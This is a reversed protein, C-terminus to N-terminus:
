PTGDALLGQAAKLAVLAKAFNGRATREGNMATNLDRQLRLVEFNTSIGEQRRQQEAQLQRQALDLTKRAARVAEAQYHVQRVAERVEAAITTELQDYTLRAARLQAWAAKFANRATTNSLPISYTLAARWTPFEYTASSQFADYSDGDFGTSGASLDLDLAGERENDRTKHRLVAADIAFRQQRLEPRKEVAVAFADLWAPVGAASATEVLPTSPVLMTDWLSAETGPFLLEKLRDAAQRVRLDAALVKEENNAVETEASLVDLQIGIGADLRKQDQDLQAKALDLSSRAVDLQARALVLDWYANSVERILGHRIEREHESQRKWAYDFEQQVATAYERWAGRLLPQKYALVLVDTTSTGEAAFTSDTKQNETDFRASFAGGTELPRQLDLFGFQTNESTGSFVNTSEFERDQVGASATLLWDFAGWSGRLDYFSVETVLQEIKLGLNNRLALVIAADLSLELGKGLGLPDSPPVAVDSQAQAADGPVQAADVPASAADAPRTAPKPAAPVQAAPEQAAPASPAPEAPPVQAPDAPPTQFAATAPALAAAVLCALPLAVLASRPNM